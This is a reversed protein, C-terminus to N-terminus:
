QLPMPRQQFSSQNVVAGNAEVNYNRLLHWLMKMAQLAIDDNIFLDQKNLSEAVSCGEIGQTETNDYKELDGYIDVVNRLTQITEYQSKPQDIAQFTGLVVQGFDRGNGCDIWYYPKQYDNGSVVNTKALENRFKANDVATIVINTNWATDPKAFSPKANWDLGFAENIKEIMAVAKNQGLDTHTFNQRGLNHKEVIDGDIATVYLGPHNMAVLVSDMRALRPLIISGTGGCGIVTITIPHRPNSFYKPAYHIKKITDM